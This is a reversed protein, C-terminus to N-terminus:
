FIKCSSLFLFFVQAWQVSSCLGLLSKLADMSWRCWFIKDFICRGPGRLVDVLDLDQYALWYKSTLRLGRNSFLSCLPRALRVWPQTHMDRQELFASFIPSLQYCTYWIKPHPSCSSFIPSFSWFSWLVSSRPFHSQFNFFFFIAPWLSYSNSPLVLLLFLSPPAAFTAPLSLLLRASAPAKLFFISLFFAGQITRVSM